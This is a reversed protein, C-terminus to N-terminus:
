DQSAQIRSVQSMGFNRGGEGYRKTHLKAFYSLRHFVGYFQRDSLPGHRTLASVPRVPFYVGVQAQRWDIDLAAGWAKCIRGSLMEDYNCGTLHLRSYDGLSFYADRNLLLAVHYHPFCANNWERVWVYRLMPDYGRKGLRLNTALASELQSRLSEFFDTIAGLPLINGQPVRLDFRFVSWRPHITLCDTMLDYIRQLYSSEVEYSSLQVPLGRWTPSEQPPQIYM